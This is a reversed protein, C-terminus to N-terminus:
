LARAGLAVANWDARTLARPAPHPNFQFSQKMVRNATVGRGGM